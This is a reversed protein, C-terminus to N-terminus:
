GGFSIKYAQPLIAIVWNLVWAFYIWPEVPKNLYLSSGAVLLVFISWIVFFTFFM